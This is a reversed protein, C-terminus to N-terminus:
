RSEKAIYAAFKKLITNDERLQANERRLRKLEDAPSDGRVPPLPQPLTDELRRRWEYLTTPTVKLERALQTVPIRENILRYVAQRKFEDDHRVSKKGM